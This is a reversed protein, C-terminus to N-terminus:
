KLASHAAAQHRPYNELIASLSLADGRPTTARAHRPFHRTIAACQARLSLFCIYAYLIYSHTYILLCPPSPRTKQACMHPWAAVRDLSLGRARAACTWTSPHIYFLAAALLLMIFTHPKGQSRSGAPLNAAAQQVLAKSFIHAERLM